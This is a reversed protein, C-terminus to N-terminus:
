FGAQGENQSPSLAQHPAYDLPQSFEELVNLFNGLALEADQTSSVKPPEMVFRLEIRRNRARGEDSPSLDIPRTGAYAAVSLVPRGKTNLLAGLDPAAETMVRYTNIARETSLIWNREVSGTQDTHGEVFLTEIAPGTHRGCAGIRGGFSM